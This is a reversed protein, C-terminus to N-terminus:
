VCRQYRRLERICNKGCASTIRETLLDASRGIYRYAAQAQRKEAIRRLVRMQAGIGKHSNRPSMSILIGDFLEDKIDDTTHKYTERVAARKYSMCKETRAWAEAVRRRANAQTRKRMESTTKRMTESEM